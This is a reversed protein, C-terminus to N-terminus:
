HVVASKENNELLISGTLCYGCIMGCMFDLACM